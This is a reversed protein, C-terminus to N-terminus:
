SSTIRGIGCIWRPQRSAIYAGFNEPKVTYIISQLVGAPIPRLSAHVVRNNPFGRTAEPFYRFGGNEEAVHGVGPWPFHGGYITMRM